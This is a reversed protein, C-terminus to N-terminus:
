LHPMQVDHNAHQLLRQRVQVCAAHSQVSENRGCVASFCLFKSYQSQKRLVIAARESFRGNNEITCSRSYYICYNGIPRNTILTSHQLPVLQQLIQGLGLQQLFRAHCFLEKCSRGAQELKGEAIVLMASRSCLVLTIVRGHILGGGWGVWWFGDKADSGGGICAGEKM